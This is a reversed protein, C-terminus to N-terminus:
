TFERSKKFILLSNFIKFVGKTSWILCTPWAVKMRYAMLKYGRLHHLSKGDKFFPNTKEGELLRKVFSIKPM